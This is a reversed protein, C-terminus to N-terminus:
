PTQEDNKDPELVAGLEAPDAGKPWRTKKDYKAGTWKSGKVYYEAMETM